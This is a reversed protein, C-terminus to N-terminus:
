NISCYGETVLIMILADREENHDNSKGKRIILTVVVNIRHHLYDRPSDGDRSERV